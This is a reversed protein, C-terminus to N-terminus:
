VSASISTLQPVRKKLIEGWVTVKNFGAGRQNHLLERLDEEYESM